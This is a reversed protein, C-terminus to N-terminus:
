EYEWEKGVKHDEGVRWGKGECCVGGWNEDQEAEEDEVGRCNHSCTIEHHVQPPPANLLQLQSYRTCKQNKHTFILGLLFCFCSFIESVNLFLLGKILYDYKEFGGLGM